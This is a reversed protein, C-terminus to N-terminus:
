RFTANFREWVKESTHTQGNRIQEQALKIGKKGETLEAAWDNSPAIIMEFRELLNPDSLEQIYQILRDKREQTSM